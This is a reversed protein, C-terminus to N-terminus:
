DGHNRQTRPGPGMPLVEFVSLDTECVDRCKLNPARIVSVTHQHKQIQPKPDLAPFERVRELLLICMTLVVCKHVPARSRALPGGLDRDREREREGDRPIRGPGLVRGSNQTGM